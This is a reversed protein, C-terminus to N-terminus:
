GLNGGGGPPDEGAASEVDQQKKRLSSWNLSPMKLFWNRQHWENATIHRVIEIMQQSFTFSLLIAGFVLLISVFSLPNVSIFPFVKQLVGEDMSFM